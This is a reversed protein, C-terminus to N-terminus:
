DGGATDQINLFSLLEALSGGGSEVVASAATRHLEPVSRELARAMRQAIYLPYPEELGSNGCQYLITKLVGSLAEDDEALAMGLEVRFAPMWAAPRFYVVGVDKMSRVLRDRVAVFKEDRIPLDVIRKLDRDAAPIPATYEGESLLLTAAIRDECVAGPGLATGLETAPTGAPVAVWLKGSKGKGCMTEFVGLSRKVRTLFERGIGTDRLRMAPMMAALVSAAPTRLSDRMFVIEHPSEDGLEVALELSLADPLRWPEASGGSAVVARHAPEDWRKTDGDPIFGEVAFAASFMLESSFLPAAARFRAIGCSSLIRKDSTSALSRLLSRDALEGRLRDRNGWVADLPAA